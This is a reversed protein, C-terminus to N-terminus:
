GTPESVIQTRRYGSTARVPLTLEFTPMPEHRYSVDGSMLRALQRSVTLGLGISATLGTQADGAEYAEFIQERRDAAIGSGDDSVELVAQDDETGTRIHIHRGGHQQGNAVLNRVIQRLRVPDAYAETPELDVEALRLRLDQPLASITERVLDDVRVQEPIVTISDASARAAILLDDIIHAVNQAERAILDIFEDLENASFDNRRIALETSLGLVVSMPTRLAHSVSAIFSDKTRVVGELTEAAKAQAQAVGLMQAVATMTRTEVPEWHRPRSAVIGVVGTVSLGDTIPFAIEAAASPLHAAYWAQDEPATSAVDDIMISRGDILDEYHRPVTMLTSQELHTPVTVGPALV